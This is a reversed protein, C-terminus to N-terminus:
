DYIRTFSDSTWDVLKRSYLKGNEFNEYVVTTPYKDQRDSEINTLFRVVYKNGNRHQWRSFPTPAM